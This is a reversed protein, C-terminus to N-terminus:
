LSTTSEILWNLMKVRFDVLWNVFRDGGTISIVWIAEVKKWKHHMYESAYGFYKFISDRYFNILSRSIASIMNKKHSLSWWPNQSLM